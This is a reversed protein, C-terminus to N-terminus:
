KYPRHVSFIEEIGSCRHAAEFDMKVVLPMLDVIKLFDEFGYKPYYYNIITSLATGHTAIAITEGKYKELFERLARVNREQVQRLCEGDEIRYDFDEWQMKIFDFFRDGHWKGANRERLDEHTEAELKLAEALKEVTQLTRTYPSSIIRTIGKDKLVEAIKEGDKKGEPTLPRTRDETYTRDSQAHRIFYVTTIKNSM